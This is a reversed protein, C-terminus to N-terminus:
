NAIALVLLYNLETFFVASTFPGVIPCQVKDIKAPVGFILVCKLGKEVLPRLMEEVKNVGYRSLAPFLVALSSM